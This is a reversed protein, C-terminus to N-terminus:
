IRRLTPVALRGALAVCLLILGMATIAEGVGIIEALVGLALTGAALSAHGMQYISMVRGQLEDPINSQVMTM